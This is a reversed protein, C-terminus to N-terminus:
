TSQYETMWPNAVTPHFVYLCVGSAASVRPALGVGRAQTMRNLLIQWHDPAGSTTMDSSPIPFFSFVRFSRRRVGDSVGLVFPSNPSSRIACIYILSTIQLQRIQYVPSVQLVFLFFFFSKPAHFRSVCRRTFFKHSDFSM